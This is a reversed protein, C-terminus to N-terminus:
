KQLLERQNLINFHHMKKKFSINAKKSYSKRCINTKIFKSLKQRKKSNNQKHEIKMKFMLRALYNLITM